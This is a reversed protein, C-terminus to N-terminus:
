RCYPKLFPFVRGVAAPMSWNEVNHLHMEFDPHLVLCQKDPSEMLADRDASRWNVSLEPGMLWRFEEFRTWDMYRIIDDRAQPWAITSVWAPHPVTKQLETPRLYEPMAEYTEKSRCVLWRILHSLNYLFALREPLRKLPSRGVQAAAISSLAHSSSTTTTSPDPTPNPNDTSPNLLSSISPFTPERLEADEQGRQQARARWSATTDIIVHDLQSVPAIYLPVQQWVETAGATNSEWASTQLDEENGPLIDVVGLLPNEASSVMQFPDTWSIGWFNFDQESGGSPAITIGTSLDLPLGPFYSTGDSPYFPSDNFATATSTGLETEADNRPPAPLLTPKTISQVQGGPSSTSSSATTDGQRYANLQAELDRVQCTLDAVKKELSDIYVKTKARCHRQNARDIARKKQVEDATLNGVRRRVNVDKDLM